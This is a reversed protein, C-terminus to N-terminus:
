KSENEEGDDESDEDAEDEGEETEETASADDVDENEASEVTEESQEAAFDPTKETEEQITGGEDEHILVERARSGDASGVVGADELLDMLRAARAYGIRLKRQLYSTSAKQAKVVIEKAEAFLEDGDGDGDEGGGFATPTQQKETVEEVFAPEGMEDALFSVIRKVEHESVYPGQVRKPKSVEASSFLMDGRGVLKEAGFTDLITRSDIASAVSFAIRGPINAKLLGTIVDVSPRQTALVLHIGVARAMQALRIIYTEVEAAAVIMLDALEDIILVIYPLPEEAVENYSSINRKGKAALTEYRRDMETVLWKLANITKKVDTIVPTLLHPVRNYVQLEVRKPDVMIFRLADPGHQYLLSLIMANIAVSKGSGTAGAVLLHPMKELAIAYSKGAVDLGLPLVLTTDKRAKRYERSMLLDKLGVVAGSKNPVEVGILSRGPIPAEIRIPHAALALALDNNLAVIKTLKIGEAPKMTYQAVTPGINVEDMEVPINFNEFTRRIIEKNAPVDGSNPNTRREDLLDLPIKVMRKRVPQVPMEPEDDDDSEEKKGEVMKPKAPTAPAVVGEEVEEMEPEEEIEEEEEELVEEEMVARKEEQWRTWLRRLVSPNEESGVVLIHFPVNFFVLLGAVSVAFIFIIALLHGLLRQLLLAIAFGLYGGGLGQSAAIQMQTEPMFTHFAATFGLFIMIMGVYKSTPVDFLEAKILYYIIGLLVFPLFLRSWGFAISLLRDAYNGVVGAFGLASFVLLLIVGFLGLILLGRKTASSLGSEEWEEEQPRRSKRPM